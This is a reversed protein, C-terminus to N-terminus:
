QEESERKESISETQLLKDIQSVYSDYNIRIIEKAAAVSKKYSPHYTVRVGAAVDSVSWFANQRHIFFEHDGHKFAIEGIVKQKEIENGSIRVRIDFEQPNKLKKVPPDPKVRPKRPGRQRKTLKKYHENLLKLDIGLHKSMREGCRQYHKGIEEALNMTKWQEIDEYWWPRFVTDYQQCFYIDIFDAVKRLYFPNVNGKKVGEVVRKIYKKQLRKTYVKIM